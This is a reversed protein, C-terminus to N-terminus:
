HIVMHAWASLWIPFTAGVYLCKLPNDDDWASAFVGGFLVFAVTMVILYPHAHVLSVDATRTIRYVEPAAAGLVGYM